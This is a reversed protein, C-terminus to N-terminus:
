EPIPDVKTWMMLADFMADQGQWEKPRHEPFFDLWDSGKPDKQGDRNVNYLMAVVEGARRDARALGEKYREM